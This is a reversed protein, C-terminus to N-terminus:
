FNLGLDIKLESQVDLLFDLKPFIGNALRKMNDSFTQPTMDIKKAIIKQSLKKRKLEINIKSYIDIAIKEKRDM